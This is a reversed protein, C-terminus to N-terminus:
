RARQAPETLVGAQNLLVIDVRRNQRRGDETTNHAVPANDAYGAVSMRERAIGCCAALTEMM